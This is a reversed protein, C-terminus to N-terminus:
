AHVRIRAAGGILSLLEIVVPTRHECRVCAFIFRTSRVALAGHQNDGAPAHVHLGDIPHMFLLSHILRLDHLWNRQKDGGDGSTSGLSSPLLHMWPLGLQGARNKSYTEMTVSQNYWLDSSLWLVAPNGGLKRSPMRQHCVCPLPFEWHCLIWTCGGAHLYLCDITSRYQRTFAPLFLLLCAQNPKGM